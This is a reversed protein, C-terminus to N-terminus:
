PSLHNSTIPDQESCQGSGHEGLAWFAHLMKLHAIVTASPCIGDRPPPKCNRLSTACRQWFDIPDVDHDPAARHVRGATNSFARPVCVPLATRRSRVSGPSSSRRRYNTAACPRRWQSRAAACLLWWRPKAASSGGRPIPPPLDDMPPSRVLSQEIISNLRNQSSRPRPWFSRESVAIKTPSIPQRGGCLESHPWERRM